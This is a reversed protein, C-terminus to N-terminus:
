GAIKQVGPQGNVPRFNFHIEIDIERDNDFDNPYEAIIKNRLKRLASCAVKFDDYYYNDLYDVFITKFSCPFSGRRKSSSNKM